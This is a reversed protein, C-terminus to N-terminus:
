NLISFYLSKRIAAVPTTVSMFLDVCITLFNFSIPVGNFINRLVAKMCPINEVASSADLNSPAETLLTLPM